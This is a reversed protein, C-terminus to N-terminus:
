AARVRDHPLCGSVDGADEGTVLDGEAEVGRLLEIASMSQPVTGDCVLSDTAAITWINGVVGPALDAPSLRYIGVLDPWIIRRGSALRGTEHRLRPRKALGVGSVIPADLSSAEALM